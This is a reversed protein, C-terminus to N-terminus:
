NINWIGNGAGWQGELQEVKWVEEGGLGSEMHIGGGEM